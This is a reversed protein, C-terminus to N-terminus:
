FTATEIKPKNILNHKITLYYIIIELHSLLKFILARCLFIFGRVQLYLLCLEILQLGKFLSLRKM